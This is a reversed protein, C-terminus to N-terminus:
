FARFLSMDMTYYDPEAVIRRSTLCFFNNKVFISIFFLCTM